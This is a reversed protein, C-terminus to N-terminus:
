SVHLVGAYDRREHRVAARAAAAWGGLARLAPAPHQRRGRGARFDQARTAARKVRHDRHHTDQLVM